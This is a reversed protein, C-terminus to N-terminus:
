HTAAPEPAPAPELEALLPTLHAPESVEIRRRTTSARSLEQHLLAWELAERREVQTWPDIQEASVRLGASELAAQLHPTGIWLGATETRSRELAQAMRELDGKYCGHREIVAAFEEFDHKVTRWVYRGREDQMQEGSAEHRAAAHCLEHDILAVRQRDEVRKDTYFERNLLVVFDWPALERHLDSAKVLKGLIWRGDVDPKWSTCWALAIRADLLENHYRAILEDLLAYMGVGIEGDRDILEYSVKKVKPKRKAM